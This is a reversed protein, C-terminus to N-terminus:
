PATRTHVLLHALEGLFTCIVAAYLIGTASQTARLRACRWALFSFMAAAVIGGLWRLVLWLWQESAIASGATSYLWAVESSAVIVVRALIAGLLLVTLRVLPRTTMSPAILYYHGLLMATLVLGLQLASSTHEFGVMLVSLVHSAQGIAASLLALIGAGAALVIPLLGLRNAEGMWFWTGVFCGAGALGLGFWYAANDNQGASVGALTVLGLAVLLHLRYFRSPVEPVPLLLLAVLMGVALRLAFIELM